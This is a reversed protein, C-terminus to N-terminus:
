PLKALDEDIKALVADSLLDPAYAKLSEQMEKLTMASAQQLNQSQSDVLQPVHKALIAKAAPNALLTGLQTTGTSYKVAAATQTPEAVAPSLGAVSAVALACTITLVRLMASEKSHRSFDKDPGGIHLRANSLIFLRAGM